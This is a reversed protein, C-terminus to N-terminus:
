QKGLGMFSLGFGNRYICLRREEVGGLVFGFGNRNREKERAHVQARYGLVMKWIEKGKM